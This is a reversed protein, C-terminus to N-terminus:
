GVMEDFIISESVIASYRTTIKYFAGDDIYRTGKPITCKVVCHSFCGLTTNIYEFADGFNTFSHFWGGDAVYKYTGFRPTNNQKLCHCKSMSTSAAEYKEGFDYPKGHFFASYVRRYEYTFDYHHIKCCVKYVTIDENAISRKNSNFYTCM